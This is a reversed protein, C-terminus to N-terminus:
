ATGCCHVSQQLIARLGELLSGVRPLMKGDIHWSRGHETYRCLQSYKPMIHSNVLARVRVRVRVRVCARVCMACVLVCVCVLVRVCVFVFAVCLDCM